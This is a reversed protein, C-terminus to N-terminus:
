EMEVFRQAHILLLQHEEQVNGAQSLKVFHLAVMEM